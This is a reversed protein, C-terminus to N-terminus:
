TSTRKVAPPFLAGATMPVVGAAPAVPTLAVAGMWAVKLVAMLAPLAVTVTFVEPPTETAPVVASSPVPFTTVKM